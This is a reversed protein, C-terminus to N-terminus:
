CLSCSLVSGVRVWAAEAEIGGPFSNIRLEGYLGPGEFDDGLKRTPVVKPPFTLGPVHIDPKTLFYSSLIWLLRLRGHNM